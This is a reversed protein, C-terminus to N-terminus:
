YDGWADEMDEWVSDEPTEITSVADIPEVMEVEEQEETEQGDDYGGSMGFWFAFIDEM